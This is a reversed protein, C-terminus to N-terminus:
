RGTTVSVELHGIRGGSERDLLRYPIVKGGAISAPAGPGAVGRQRDDVVGVNLPNALPDDEASQHRSAVKREGAELGPEFGRILSPGPRQEVTADATRREEDGHVLLTPDAKGGFPEARAQHRVAHHDHLAAGERRLLDLAPDDELEGVADDQQQVRQRDQRQARDAAESQDALALPELADAVLDAADGVELHRHQEAALGAGALLEDGVGDMLGARPAVLGEQRHVHAGDRRREGGGLQESRGLPGVGARHAVLGAVELAGVAARQEQVLDALGRGLHLHHQQPHDLGALDLADAAGSRLLHVHPQDRRGVGVEFPRDFRPAEARREEVPQRSVLQEDGGQALAPVVEPPEEAMEQRLLQSRDVLLVAQGGRLLARRM